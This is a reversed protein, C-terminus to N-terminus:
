NVFLKDSLIIFSVPKSGNGTIKYRFKQNKFLFPSCERLKHERDVLKKRYFCSQRLLIFAIFNKEPVKVFYLCDRHM